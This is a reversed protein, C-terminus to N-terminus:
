RTQLDMSEQQITNLYALSLFIAYILVTDSAHHIKSCYEFQVHVHNLHM